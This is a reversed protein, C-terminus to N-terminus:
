ELILSEMRTASTHIARKTHTLPLLLTMLHLAQFLSCSCTCSIYYALLSVHEPRPHPHPLWNRLGWIDDMERDGRICMMQWIAVSLHLVWVGSYAQLSSSICFFCNLSWFDLSLRVATLLTHHVLLLNKWQYKMMMLEESVLTEM